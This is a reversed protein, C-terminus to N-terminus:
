PAALVLTYTGDGLSSYIRVFYRGAPLQGGSATTREIRENDDISASGAIPTPAQGEAAAVLLQVDIDVDTQAFLVDVTVDSPVALDFAFWDQDSSPALPLPGYSGSPITDAEAATNNPEYPDSPDGGDTGPPADPGDAPPGADERADTTGGGGGDALDDFSLVLSCGSGGLALAGLAVAATM